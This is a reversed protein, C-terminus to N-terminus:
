PNEPEPLCESGGRCRLTFRGLARRSYCNVGRPHPNQDKLFEASRRHNGGHAPARCLQRNRRFNGGLHRRRHPRKDLKKPIANLRQLRFDGLQFLSQIPRRLIRRQRRGRLMRMGLRRWRSLWRALLGSALRPVGLGFPGRIAVSCHLSTTVRLGDAQRRQPRLSAPVSAAVAAADPTPVAPFGVGPSRIDVGDGPTHNRCRSLTHRVAALRESRDPRAAAPRKPPAGSPSSGVISAGPSGTGPVPGPVVRSAPTPPSAAFGLWPRGGDRGVFFEGALKGGLLSQRDIFRGRLFAVDFGPQPGAHGGREGHERQAGCPCGRYQLFQEVSCNLPATM